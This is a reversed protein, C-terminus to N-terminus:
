IAYILSVMCNNKKRQTVESLITIEGEVWTAAFPMTKNNKHNFVIENNVHAVDDKVM